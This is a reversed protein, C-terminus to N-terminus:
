DLADLDGLTLQETRGSPTSGEHGLAGWKSRPRYVLELVPALRDYRGRNKGCWTDTQAHCNPCLLRLNEIRNDTRDGNIHDLQLPIATGNWATRRCGECVAQKYGEALLRMRLHATSQMPSNAVLVETLPRAPSIPTTSGKRWGQGTFHSTDLGLERIRCQISM